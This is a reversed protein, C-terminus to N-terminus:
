CGIGSGSLKSRQYPDHRGIACHDGSHLLWDAVVHREEALVVQVQEVLAAVVLGVRLQTSVRVLGVPHGAGVERGPRRVGVEDRHDPVEVAPLGAGMGERRAALRPDPLAENGADALALDVLEVDLRAVHGVAGVLGIGVAESM